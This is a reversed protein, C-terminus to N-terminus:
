VDVIMKSAVYSTCDCFTMLAEEHIWKKLDQLMCDGQAEIKQQMGCCVNYNDSRVYRGDNSQWDSPGDKSTASSFLVLM